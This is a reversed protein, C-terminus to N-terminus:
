LPFTISVSSKLPVKFFFEDFLVFNKTWGDRRYKSLFRSFTSEEMSSVGEGRRPTFMFTIKIGIEMEFYKGIGKIMKNSSFVVSSVFIKKGM